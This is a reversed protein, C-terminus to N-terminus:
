LGSGSPQLVKKERQKYKNNNKKIKLFKVPSLKNYEQKNGSFGRARDQFLLHSCLYSITSMSVSRTALSLIDWVM